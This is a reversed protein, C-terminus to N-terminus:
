VARARRAVEARLRPGAVAIHTLLIRLASGLELTLVDPLGPARTDINGRVAYVPAIAALRDLVALDGIDGGHLIADPALAALREEAQAHPQSHTDAVAVLRLTGDDRLAIREVREVVKDVAKRAVRPMHRVKGCAPRGAGFPIKAAGVMLQLIRRTLGNAANASSAAHEDGGCAVLSAGAAGSAAVESAGTASAGAGSADAAHPVRVPMRPVVCRMSWTAPSSRVYM